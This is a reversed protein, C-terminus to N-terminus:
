SFYLGYIAVLALVIGLWNIKSVHERFGMAGILTGLIIVGMNMGAFVLTPSSSMAKHAQIYTWINVFNLSGLLLGGVMDRGTLRVRKLLVYAWMLVGALIFILLLNTGTGNSRSLQKLLIDISGYGLWVGLLWKWAQNAAQVSAAQPKYLVCFLAIFALGLGWAKNVALSEGFLAFAALVPLFLSLRQAADARVIGATQVARGMIIFVTPLLVGLLGFLWAQPLIQTQWNTFNPQLFATACVAAVVYNMAVMQALGMNHQRAIKLLVSISVSCLISIILYIM